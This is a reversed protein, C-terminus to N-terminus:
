FCVSFDFAWEKKRLFVSLIVKLTKSDCKPNLYNNLSYKLRYREGRGEWDRRKEM